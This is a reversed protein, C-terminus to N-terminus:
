EYMINITGANFTDTGGVTTIRVIGLAGGLTISGGTSVFFRSPGRTLITLGTCVWDNGTINELKISGTRSDTATDWYLPFGTTSSGVGAASGVYVFAGAYGTTAPTGGTGIQIQHQSTGSTRVGNFLVTVRKVWSPISTFNINTGSTTAVATGSTIVSANMVPTGGITPSTLTKNTLTQTATDGVLIATADPLTLTQTNNSNPSAITFSGSGGTAAQLKVSSM